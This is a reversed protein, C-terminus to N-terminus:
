GLRGDRKESPTRKDQVGFEGRREMVRMRYMIAAISTGLGSLLAIVAGVVPPTEFDM